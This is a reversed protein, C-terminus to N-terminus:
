PEYALLESPDEDSSDTCTGVNKDTQSGDQDFDFASSARDNDIEIDHSKPSKM